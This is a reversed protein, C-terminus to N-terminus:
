IKGSWTKKLADSLDTVKGAPAVEEKEEYATIDIEEFEPTAKQEKEEIFSM